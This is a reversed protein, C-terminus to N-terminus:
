TYNLTILDYSGVRGLIEEKTKQKHQIQKMQVPKAKDDYHHIATEFGSLNTFKTTRKSHVIVSKSSPVAGVSSDLCINATLRKKNIDKNQPPPPPHYDFIMWGLIKDM